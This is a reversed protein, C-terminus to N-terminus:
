CALHTALSVSLDEGIQNIETWWLFGNRDVIKMEFLYLYLIYLFNSSTGGFYKEM